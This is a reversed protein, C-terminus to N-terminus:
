IYWKYVWMGLKKDFYGLCDKIKPNPNFNSPPKNRIPKLHKVYSYGKKEKLIPQNCGMLTLKKM